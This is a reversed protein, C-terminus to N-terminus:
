TQQHFLMAPIVASYCALRSPLQLEALKGRSQPLWQGTCQALQIHKHKFVQLCKHESLSM